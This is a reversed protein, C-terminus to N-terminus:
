PGAQPPAAARDLALNLALVNVRPEGLFGLTRGTTHEGILRLVAARTMGRAQAVRAAQARANAVTIDPDLGSGSTTVMDVPVSGATLGPDAKVQARVDAAVRDVLTKSTPGLNSAASAMADYGGAGAASPRPWFYKDQSFAQAIFASGVVRGDAQVLSGDAAGPFVVQAVGTIALPYLLGLLVATLITMRIATDLHRRM